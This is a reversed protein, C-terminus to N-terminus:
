SPLGNLRARALAAVYKTFEVALLGTTAPVRWWHEIQGGAPFVPWPVIDADPLRRRLEVMARPLHYAATVLILRTASNRAAWGAVEVANGATDAAQYGLEVCCDFLDANGAYAPMMPKTVDANVGTVFLRKSKEARLLALGADLRQAGGTLVVIADAEAEIAPETRPLNWTFHLFGGLWLLPLVLLWRWGRM